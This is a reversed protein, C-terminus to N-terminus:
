LTLLIAPSAAAACVDERGRWEKSAVSTSKL